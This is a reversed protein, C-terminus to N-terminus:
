RERKPCSEVSFFSAPDTECGRNFGFIDNELLHKVKQAVEEYKLENGGQVVIRLVSKSSRCLSVPFVSVSVSCTGAHFHGRNRFVQPPGPKWTSESDHKIQCSYMKQALAPFFNPSLLGGVDLYLVKGAERLVEEASHAVPLCSPLVFEDQVLREFM